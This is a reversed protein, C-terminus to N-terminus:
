LSERGHGHQARHKQHSRLSSTSERRAHLGQATARPHAPLRVPHARQLRLALRPYVAFPTSGTLFNDQWINPPIFMIGGGAHASMKKSVQWTAQLRPEWANWDTQYGPQPNIVFEQVGNVTLFGSTRHARETIPTYLDWRIGYDLTFRSSM